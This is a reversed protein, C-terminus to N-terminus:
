FMCSCEFHTPFKQIFCEYLGQHRPTDFIKIFRNEVSDNEFSKLHNLLRKWLYYQHGKGALCGNIDIYLSYPLLEEKKLVCRLDKIDVEYRLRCIPCILHSTVALVQTMRFHEYSEKLSHAIHGFSCRSLIEVVQLFNWEDLVELIEAFLHAQDSRNRSKMKNAEEESLYGYTQLEDILNSESVMLDSEILLINQRVSESVANKNDTNKNNEKCTIDKVPMCIRLLKKLLINENIIFFVFVLVLTDIILTDIIASTLLLNDYTAIDTPEFQHNNTATEVKCLPETVIQPYSKFYEINIEQCMDKNIEQSM